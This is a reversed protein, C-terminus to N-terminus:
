LSEYYQKLPILESGKGEKYMTGKPTFVIHSQIGCCRICIPTDYSTSNKKNLRGKCAICNIHTRAKKEKQKM